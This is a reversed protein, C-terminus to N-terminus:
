QLARAAAPIRGRASLLSAGPARRSQGSPVDWGKLDALTLQSWISCYEDFDDINNFSLNVSVPGQLDGRWEERDLDLSFICDPRIGPDVGADLMSGYVRDMLFYVVGDVVVASSTEVRNESIAMKRWEADEAPGNVTFVDVFQRQAFGICDRWSMVRLVKYHGTAAIHGFAFSSYPWSYNQDSRHGVIPVGPLVFAAGTAPNIVRCTNRETEACALDLRTCLLQHGDAAIRKVVNGSLDVVHIHMHTQDDRFNALLLPGPHRATHERIFLPDYTFSRWLRCVARLRCLDRAPLRLLVEFLVDAQLAGASSGAPASRTRSTSPTCPSLSAM